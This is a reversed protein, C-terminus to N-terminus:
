EIWIVTRQRKTIVRGTKGNLVIKKEIIRNYNNPEDPIKYEIEWKSRLISRKRYIETALINAPWNASERSFFGKEVRINQKECFMLVDEFTFKFPEDYNVEKTLRGAEDFYYWVGKQFGQVYSLGKRVLTGDLRFQRFLSFYSNPHYTNFYIGANPGFESVNINIVIGGPARVRYSTKQYTEFDFLEFEKTVIPYGMADLQIINDAVARERTNSFVSPVYIAPLVSLCKHLFQKRSILNAM